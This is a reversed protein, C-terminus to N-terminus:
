IKRTVLLISVDLLSWAIHEKDTIFIESLSVFKGINSDPDGQAALATIERVPLTNLQEFGIIKFFFIHAFCYAM